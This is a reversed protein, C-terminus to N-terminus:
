NEPPSNVEKESGNEKSLSPFIKSSILEKIELLTDNIRFIVIIYEAIIRIVLPGIVITILGALYQGQTLSSVGLVLCMLISLWFLIQILTPFLMRRFLFFDKIKTM